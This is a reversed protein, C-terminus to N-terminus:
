VVSWACCACRSGSPKRHGNRRASGGQGQGGPRLVPRRQLRVARPGSITSWKRLRTQFPWQRPKPGASRSRGTRHVPPQSLAVSFLDRAARDARNQATQPTAFGRWLQAIATTLAKCGLGFWPAWVRSSKNLMAKARLPAIEFLEPTPATACHVTARWGILKIAWGFLCLRSGHPRRSTSAAVQVRQFISSFRNCQICGTGQIALALAEPDPPPSSSSRVGSRQM